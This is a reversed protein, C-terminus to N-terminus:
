HGEEWAFTVTIYSRKSHCCPCLGNGSELVRQKNSENEIGRGPVLPHKIIPQWKDTDGQLKYADQLLHHTVSTILRKLCGAISSKGFSCSSYASIVGLIM